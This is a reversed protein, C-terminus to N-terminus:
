TLSRYGQYGALVPDGPDTQGNSSAADDTTSPFHAEWGFGAAGHIRPDLDFESVEDSQLAPHDTRLLVL